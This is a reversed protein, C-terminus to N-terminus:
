WKVIYKLIEEQAHKECEMTSELGVREYRVDAYAM